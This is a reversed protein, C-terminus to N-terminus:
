RSEDKGAYIEYKHLVEKGGAREVRFFTNGIVASKEPFAGTGIAMHGVATHADLHGVEANTYNASKQMLAHIRPAASRHTELLNRGGQDIVAVVIIEPKEPLNKVPLPPVG